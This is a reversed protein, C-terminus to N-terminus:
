DADSLRVIGVKRCIANLSIKPMDVDTAGRGRTTATYVLLTAHVELGDEALVLDLTM